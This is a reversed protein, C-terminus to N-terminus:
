TGGCDNNECASCRASALKVTDTRQPGPSVDPKRGPACCPELAHAPGRRERVQTQPLGDVFYQFVPLLEGTESFLAAICHLRAEDAEYNRLLRVVAPEDIPAFLEALSEAIPLEPLPQYPIAIAAQV